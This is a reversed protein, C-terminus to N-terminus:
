DAVQRAQEAFPDFERAIRFEYIGPALDYHEHPIDADQILKQPEDLLALLIKMGAPAPRELVDADGTLIHHNGSKSHSIIAGNKTREITARAANDPMADIIFISIEGQAGIYTKM